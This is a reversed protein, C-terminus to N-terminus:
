GALSLGLTCNCYERTIIIIIGDCRDGLKFISSSPNASDRIILEVDLWDGEGEGSGVRWREVRLTLLCAGRRLRLHEADSLGGDPSLYNEM